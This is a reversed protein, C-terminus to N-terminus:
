RGGWSRSWEDTGYRVISTTTICLNMAISYRESGIYPVCAHERSAYALWLRSGLKLVGSIRGRWGLRKDRRKSLEALLGVGNLGLRRISSSSLRM